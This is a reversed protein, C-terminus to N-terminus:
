AGECKHQRRKKRLCLVAYSIAVHSSNLRTSKRDIIPGNLAIPPLAIHVRSGDTLRADVMPTSEDVRRGVPAVIREIVNRLQQESAFSVPLQTCVGEREIFIGELGNVM